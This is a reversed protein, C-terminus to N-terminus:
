VTQVTYNKDRLAIGLAISNMMTTTTMMMTMTM